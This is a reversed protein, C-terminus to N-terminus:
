IIKGKNEQNDINNQQTEKKIIRCMMYEKEIEYYKKEFEEDNIINLYDSINGNFIIRDVDSIKEKLRKRFELAINVCNQYGPSHPYGYKLSFERAYLEAMGENLMSGKSYSQQNNGIDIVDEQKKDHVRPDIISHFIEHVAVSKILSFLKDKYTYNYDFIRKYINMSMNPSTDFDKSNMKNIADKYEEDSLFSTKEIYGRCVELLKDFEDRFSSPYFHIQPIIMGDSSIITDYNAPHNGYTTNQEGDVVINDINFNSCLIKKSGQLISYYDKLIKDYISKCYKFMMEQYARKEEEDNFISREM